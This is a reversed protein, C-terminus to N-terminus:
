DEFVDNIDEREVILVDNDLPQHMLLSLAVHGQNKDADTDVYIYSRREHNFSISATPSAVIVPYIAQWTSLDPRCHFHVHNFNRGRLYSDRNELVVLLITGDFFEYNVWGNNETKRHLDNRILNVLSDVDELAQETHGLTMGWLSILYTKHGRSQTLMASAMKGINTMQSMKIFQKM